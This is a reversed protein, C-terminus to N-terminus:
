LAGSAVLVPVKARKGSKEGIGATSQALCKREFPRIDVGPTLHHRETVGLVPPVM